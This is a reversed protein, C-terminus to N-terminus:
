EARAVRSTALTMGGIVAPVAAATAIKRIVERRRSPRDQTAERAAAADIPKGTM